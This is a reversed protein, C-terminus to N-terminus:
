LLIIDYKLYGPLVTLDGPNVALDILGRFVADRPVRKEVSAGM